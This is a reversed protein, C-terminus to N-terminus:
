LEFKEKIFDALKKADSAGMELAYGKNIKPDQVSFSIWQHKMGQFEDSFFEINWFSDGPMCISKGTFKNPDITEKNM